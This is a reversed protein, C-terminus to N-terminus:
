KLLQDIEKEHKKAAKYGLDYLKKHNHASFISYKGTEIEIKITASQQDQRALSDQIIYFSQKAINNILINPKVAEKDFHLLSISIIKKAGKEKLINAPVINTIGGDILTKKGIKEPNFFAPISISASVANIINGKEIYEPMGTVLNTAVAVFKVELDEINGTLYPKLVEKVKDKSFLGKLSFNLDIVQSYDLIKKSFEFIEDSNYGKSIMAGIISGVSTGSIINPKFGKEELFKLAGIHAFGRFGGGGLALGYSM